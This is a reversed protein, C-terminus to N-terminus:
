HLASGRTSSEILNALFSLIMNAGVTTTSKTSLFTVSFMFLANLEVLDRVYDIIERGQYYVYDQERYFYIRFWLENDAFDELGLNTDIVQITWTNADDTPDDLLAPEDQLSPLPMPRSDEPCFHFGRSSDSMDSIESYSDFDNSASGTASQMVAPQSPRRMPPPEHSKSRRRWPFLLRPAISERVALNPMSPERRHLSKKNGGLKQGVIQKPSLRDRWSWRQQMTSSPSDHAGHDSSEKVGNNAAITNRKSKRRLGRSVHKEEQHHNNNNMKILDENDFNKLTKKKM